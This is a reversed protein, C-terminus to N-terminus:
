FRPRQAAGISARQRVEVADAHECLHAALERARDPALLAAQAAPALLVVVGDGLYTTVRKPRRMGDRCEVNRRTPADTGIKTPASM